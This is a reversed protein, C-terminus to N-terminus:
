LLLRRHYSWHLLLLLLLLLLLCQSGEGGLLLLLLLLFLPLKLSGIAIVAVGTMCVIARWYFRSLLLAFLSDDGSHERNDDHANEDDGDEGDHLECGDEPIGM